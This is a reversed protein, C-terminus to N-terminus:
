AIYEVISSQRPLLTWYGIISCLTFMYNIEASVQARVGPLQGELKEAGTKM